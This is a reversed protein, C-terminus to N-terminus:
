FVDLWDSGLCICVDGHSRGAVVVFLDLRDLWTSVTMM